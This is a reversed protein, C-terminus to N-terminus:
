KSPTAAPGVEVSAPGVPAPESQMVFMTLVLACAKAVPGSCGEATMEDSTEPKPDLTMTGDAAFRITATKGDPMTITAGDDVLTVGIPKGDIMVSGEPTVEGLASGDPKSIKGDSSLKVFVETGMKVTGDAMIEVVEDPKDKARLKAAGLTLVAAAPKPQEPEAQKEPEDAKKVDDTKKADAQKEEPKKDCAALLLLSVLVPALTRLPTRM